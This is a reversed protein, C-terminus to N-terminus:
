WRRLGAGEPKKRGGSLSVAQATSSSNLGGKSQAEGKFDTTEKSIGPSKWSSGAAEAAQRSYDSTYTPAKSAKAASAPAVYDEYNKGSDLWTILGTEREKERQTSAIEQDLLFNQQDLNAMQTFADATSDYYSDWADAKATNTSTEENIRSTRTAANLDAIGSNISQRTDFFSRAVDGQNASWNRLAQMQSAIIDSEGAGQSLAQTVLDGRERARNSLNAFSADAESAENGRLDGRFSEIGSTFTAMIQDIKTKLADDLNAIVTDRAKALSGKDGVLDKLADLSKTNTSKQATKITIQEDLRSIDDNTQSRAQKNAATRAEQRAIEAASPGSDQAAYSRSGSSSSARPASSGSKGSGNYTSVSRSGGAQGSTITPRGAKSESQAYENTYPGVKPVPPGYGGGSFDQRYPQKKKKSSPGGDAMVMRTAM